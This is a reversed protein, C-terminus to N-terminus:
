ARPANLLSFARSAQALLANTKLTGKRFWRLPRKRGPPPPAEDFELDIREICASYLVRREASSQELGATEIRGLLGLITGVADEVQGELKRHSEARAIEGVVIQLNAQWGRVLEALQHASTPDVISIRELAKGIRLNLEEERTRLRQLEVSDRPGERSLQEVLVQRLEDREAATPVFTDRLVRLVAAEFVPASVSYPRCSKNRSYSSCAYRVYRRGKASSTQGQYREGCHGCYLIGTMPHRNRLNRRRGPQKARRDMVQGARHFLERKILAPHHDPIRIWEHEPNAAHTTTARKPSTSPRAPRQDVPRGGSIRCVKGSSNRNFVLEGIYVPNRLIARVTGVCWSKDQPSPIGEANLGKCIDAMGRTDSAYEEFIRRLVKIEDPDGEVLAAAHVGKEKRHKARREIVREVGDPYVLRKRYGYPIKGSSVGGALIHDIQGRITKLGLDRLYAGAVVQELHPVIADSIANGTSNYGNLLRLTWGSATIRRELLLGDLSDLARALRSRDWLLLYGPGPTSEIYSLLADLGPRSLESGSIAEDSFTEVIELGDQAAYRRIADLQQEVSRDQQASSCRAYAVALRPLPPLSPIRHSGAM